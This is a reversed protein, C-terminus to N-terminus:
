NGNNEEVYPYFERDICLKLRAVIWNEITDRIDGIMEINWEIPETTPNLGQIM